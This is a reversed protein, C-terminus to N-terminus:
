NNIKLYFIFKLDVFKFEIIYNHKRAVKSIILNYMLQRNVKTEEKIWKELM